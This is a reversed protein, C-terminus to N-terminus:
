MGAECAPRTHVAPVTGGSGYRRFRVAPVTGGPGYRRFRVALVTGGSDYRRFQVALVTGGSRYRRFPIAGWSVTLPLWGHLHCCDPEDASSCPCELPTTTLHLDLGSLSLRYPPVGRGIGRGLRVQGVVDYDEEQESDDVLQEERRPQTPADTRLRDVCCPPEEQVTQGICEDHESRKGRQTRNGVVGHVCQVADFIRVFGEESGGGHPRERDDVGDVHVVHGAAELQRRRVVEVVQEEDRRKAERPLGERPAREGVPLGKEDRAEGSADVVEKEAQVRRAISSALQARALAARSVDRTQVHARAPALDATDVMHNLLADIGVQVDPQARGADEGGGHQEVLYSKVQSSELRFMQSRAGPM